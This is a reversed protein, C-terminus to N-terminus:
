KQHALEALRVLTALTSNLPAAVGHQKAISVVAGNLADVETRRGTQIDRLMSPIHDGHQTCSLTIMSYVQELDIEVNCKQAVMAVEDAVQQALAKAGPSANITGPTGHSLASLANMGTNFAVKEWIRKHINIDHQLDINAQQFVSEIRQAMVTDSQKAASGFYSSGRGKGEIIGPALKDAPMMSNGVWIREQPVLQAIAQANGLGNQLSLFHTDQDIRSAISTIADASQFAKTMLLVLDVPSQITKPPGARVSVRREGDPGKLVLGNATIAEHHEVNTTSGLAGAGLVAIRM